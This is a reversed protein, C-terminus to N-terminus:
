VNEQTPFEDLVTFGHEGALAMMKDQVLSFKSYYVFDVNNEKSADFDSESDGIFVIKKGRNNKQIDAVIGSKPHPAGFIGKFYRDIGRQAFVWQLEDQVSGSAVYKDGTLKTIFNLFGPAITAQLYLARCASSYQELIADYYEDAETGALCFINAVFHRIHSFRSKGFNAAFYQLCQEIKDSPFAQMGRLAKEM